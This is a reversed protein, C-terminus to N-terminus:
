YGLKSCYNMGLKCQTIFKAIYEKNMSKDQRALIFCTQFLTYLNKYNINENKSEIKIQNYYYNLEQRILQDTSLRIYSTISDIILYVTNNVAPMVVNKSTTCGM